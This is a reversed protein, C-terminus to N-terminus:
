LAISYADELHTREITSMTKAGPSSLPKSYILKFLCFSTYEKWLMVNKGYCLTRIVISEYNTYLIM